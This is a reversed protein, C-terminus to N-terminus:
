SPTTKSSNDQNPSLNDEKPGGLQKLRSSLLGFLQHAASLRQQEEKPLCTHNLTYHIASQIGDTFRALMNDITEQSVEHQLSEPIKPGAKYEKITRQCATNFESISKKLDDNLSNCYISCASNLQMKLHELPARVEHMLQIIEDVEQTLKTIAGSFQTQLHKHLTETSQEIFEENLNKPASM